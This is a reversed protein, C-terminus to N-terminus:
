RKRFFFFWLLFWILLLFTLWALWQAPIKALQDVLWIPVKWFYAYWPTGEVIIEETLNNVTEGINGTLNEIVSNNAM